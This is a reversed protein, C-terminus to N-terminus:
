FCRTARNQLHKLITFLYNLRVVLNACQLLIVKNVILEVQSLFRNAECIRIPCIRAGDDINLGCKVFSHKSSKNQVLIRPWLENHDWFQYFNRVKKM